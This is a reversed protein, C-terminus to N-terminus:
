WQRYGGLADLKRNLSSHADATDQSLFNTTGREARRLQEDALEIFGRARKAASLAEEARDIATRLSRQESPDTSGEAEKLRRLDRDRAKLVEEAQSRVRNYQVRAQVTAVQMKATFSNLGVRMTQLAEDQVKYGPM